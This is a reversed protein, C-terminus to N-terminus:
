YKKITEINNYLLSQQFQFKMYIEQLIGLMLKWQWHQSVYLLERQLIINPM